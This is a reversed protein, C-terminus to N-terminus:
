GDDSMDKKSVAERPASFGNEDFSFASNKVEPRSTQINIEPFLERTEEAGDLELPDLISRNRITRRDRSRRREPQHNASPIWRRDIGTRRSITTSPTNPKDKNM